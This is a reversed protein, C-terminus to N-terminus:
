ETSKLEQVVFSATTVDALLLQLADWYPSKSVGSFAIHLLKQEGSALALTGFTYDDTCAFTTDYQNGGTGCGYGTAYPGPPTFAPVDGTEATMVAIIWDTICAAPNNPNADFDPQAPGGGAYPVNPDGWVPTNPDSFYSIWIYAQVTNVLAIPAPWAITINSAEAGNDIYREFGTEPVYRVGTTPEFILYKGPAGWLRRNSLKWTKNLFSYFDLVFNVPPTTDLAEWFERMFSMPWLFSNYNFPMLAENLDRAFYNSYDEAIPARVYMTDYIREPAQRNAYMCAIQLMQFLESHTNQVGEDYMQPNGGPFFLSTSLPVDTSPQVRCVGMILFPRPFTLEYTAGEESTELLTVSNLQTGIQNVNKFYPKYCHSM